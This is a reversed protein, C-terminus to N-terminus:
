DLTYVYINDNNTNNNNLRRWVYMQFTSHQTHTHTLTAIRAMFELKYIMKLAHSLINFQFIDRM